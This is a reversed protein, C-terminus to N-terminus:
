TVSLVSLCSLCSLPGTAYPSGSNTLDVLFHYPLQQCAMLAPPAVLAYRSADFRPVTCNLWWTSSQATNVSRAGTLLYDFGSVQMIAASFAGFRWLPALHHENNYSSIRKWNLVAHSNVSQEMSDLKYRM